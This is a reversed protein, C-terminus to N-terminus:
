ISQPAAQPPTRPPRQVFRLAGLQALAHLDAAGQPDQLTWCLLNMRLKARKTSGLRAGDCRVGDEAWLGILLLAKLNLCYRLTASRGRKARQKRVFGERRLRHLIVQQSKGQAMYGLGEDGLHGALAMAELMDLRLTHDAGQELYIGPLM